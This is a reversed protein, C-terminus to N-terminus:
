EFDTVCNTVNRKVLPKGASCKEGVILNKITLGNVDDAMITPRPDNELTRITFNNVSINNVHRIFLGAAPLNKWNTPQPYGKIDEKVDDFSALYDGEKVGGKQIINFNNLQVNEVKFGPIGTVSCAWNGSNYATINSITINKVSGVEPTEMDAVYKRGRGGLRVYVPCMTQDITINNISIGEMTGGDVIQLSVGVIGEWYMNGKPIKTHISPKVVCNSININRFGGSSETGMKIGNAFSSAICNSIVVDECPAPGTSKLCIADDHSDIISNNLVVRRCGDIDIGDNNRNSHNYVRIGRIEVDECNLYHQNWVGSNNISVDHVKVNNCSIFLVNRPRGDKDGGAEYPRPQQLSGQGDITGSGTISINNASEAYILAYWGGIDKQSRYEPQKQRPYDEHKASGLIVAGKELYLEVNDKLTITGSLYKGAPVIVKGGGNQHCQNVAAQIAKSNVTIGDAVAGFEKVNYEKASISLSALLFLLVLKFKM